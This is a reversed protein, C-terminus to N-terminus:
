AAAEQDDAGPSEDEILEDANLGLAMRLQEADLDGLSSRAPLVLGAVRRKGAVIEEVREDVTGPCVLRHSVVTSTQGIRWARDRAQDEVAPNWWRDYLVVHNAATLNLGSGGAKISLVLAAPGEGNQFEEIIQDRAGRALGGHYCAVATKTYASLHSAMREGWRAFHTFILIREGSAFVEDVIQELRTLKGSRGALPQEDGAGLYAAPHDCIQKLATIAALVQGKRQNADLDLGDDLLREVVAQYLGVQEPTMSCNDLKDVKDPLEAAIEPESKTRRFVLLGNLAQLAGEEARATKPAAAAAGKGPAAGTVRTLQEIFATRGGVLGPNAFDLISWLDGLGNEVPTGTLALRSWARLRRLAQATESQHNKIAQAEDVVVRRWEVGSLHDMDRVTTAYTSLVVDAGRILDSLAEGTARRPGHHVAVKLSPTFRRAETAWNSLVAPPCVVLAPGNGRDLRLQALVTPTKGLGMDMALCGGLGARDLFGLWGVADAQYHRLEGEFGEPAAVPAPPNSRAGRLLEVAWGSGEVRLPGGLSAGELGVAHRLLAAGSLQTIAAREALAAAAAALDARDIHVWRGTVQVLPKAEAALRSIAAADLELDDFFVSWRVAALQQIGVQSTGGLAEAFLRLQPSPRRRSVRPLFVDFGAAALVPGTTFMLETAEDVDLIVQGRRTSPRRLAPLLRELRRMQAEVQQAKAGSAVVLAHEVPLPQKDVGTVQVTLLWGGDASPPDLGVTLGIKGSITVPAAWRKLDEALRGVVDSSASFARGDLGSLIAESVEVRSTAEPLTAPAVLRAAGARSVADVVSSLVSRCVGDPQPTSQLAAVAGPMAAVEAMLRDREVLAPVWRVRHRGTGSRGAGSAAGTSGRVVPVMRGEAVLQTGWAAITGLWRLSGGFQEGVQGNGIGVLWGLTQAIPASRAEATEGSPLPVAAHREWGIASAEAASILVDLDESTGAPSGPGGAWVVIRGDVWSAHLAPPGDAEVPKPPHVPAAAGPAAVVAVAADDSAIEDGNREHLAVALQRREHRLDALVQEREEGTSRAVHRLADDTQLILRRLV